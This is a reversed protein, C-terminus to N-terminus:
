RVNRILEECIVDSSIDLSTLNKNKTLVKAIPEGGEKKELIIIISLQNSFLADEWLRSYM